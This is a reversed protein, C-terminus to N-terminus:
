ETGEPAQYAVELGLIIVGRVRVGNSAHGYPAFTPGAFGHWSFFLRWFRLRM